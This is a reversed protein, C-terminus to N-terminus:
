AADELETHSKYGLARLYDWIEKQYRLAEDLAEPSMQGPGSRTIKLNQYVVDCKDLLTREYRVM